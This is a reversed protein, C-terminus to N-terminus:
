ITRALIVKSNNRLSIHEKELTGCLPRLTAGFNNRSFNEIGFKADYSKRSLRFPLSAKSFSQVMMLYYYSEIQNLQRFINQKVPGM